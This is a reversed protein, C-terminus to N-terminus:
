LSFHLTSLDDNAGSRDTAWLGGLHGWGRRGRREAITMNCIPTGGVVVYRQMTTPSKIMNKYGHSKTREDLMLIISQAKKLLTTKELRKLLSTSALNCLKAYHQSLPVHEFAATSSPSNCPRGLKALHKCSAAPPGPSNPFIRKALSARVSVLAALRCDCSTCPTAAAWAGTRLKAAECSRLM